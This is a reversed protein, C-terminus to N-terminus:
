RTIIRRMPIPIFIIYIKKEEEKTRYVWSNEKM